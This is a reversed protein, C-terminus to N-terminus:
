WLLQWYDLAGKLKYIELKNVMAPLKMAAKEEDTLRLDVGFPPRGQSLRLRSVSKNLSGNINQKLNTPLVSHVPKPWAGHM